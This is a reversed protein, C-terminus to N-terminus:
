EVPFTCDAARRQLRVIFGRGRQRVLYRDCTAGTRVLCVFVSASPGETFFLKPNGTCRTDGAHHSTREVALRARHQDPTEACGAAALAAVSLAVGGGARVSM